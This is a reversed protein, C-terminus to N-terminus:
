ACVCCVAKGGGPSLTYLVIKRCRQVPVGPLVLEGHVLGVAVYFGFASASHHEGSCQKYAAAPMAHGALKSLAGAVTQYAEDGLRPVQGGYFRSPTQRIASNCEASPGRTDSASSTGFGQRNCIPSVASESDASGKEGNAGTLLLDVEGLRVGAATLAEAIWRAEAAADFTPETLQGLRIASVWALPHAAHEPRALAFMACGEGPLARQRGQPASAFPRVAPTQENWWGWRRGAALHHPNLEDGAGVLAADARGAAIERAGQWLASEFCIGRQVSTSNLGRLELEIAIQSALGNHVSNTFFLPRPAREDKAILNEVFAATDNLSGLGTGVAVCIRDPPVGPLADAPLCQKAAVLAMQQLRNLKRRKASDLAQEAGFDGCAYVPIAGRGPALWTEAVSLKAGGREVAERIAATSNGAASVAAAGIIALRALPGANEEVMIVAPAADARSFVLAVNNGGFGFSNSLIHRVPLGGFERVPEFGVKPDSQEFGLSAPVAQQRLAEVCLVAKIAGSAALTHGFFRMMSGVPPLADGFLRRLARAETADNDPTGTGHASVYGVDGVTRGASHLAAQMAALAGRGEPHPATAHWADCSAGWGELRALIQAGRVRASEESELVLMGAGEGLSIGTRRADFPRCGNPDLLLLSGFGNLTLRCLSDGGGVLAFDAEGSEILDAGMALAMAGAACAASVTTCVGKAGIQRACLEAAGACEHFRLPGFRSRHERLLTSLVQETSPMGGVTSGIVVAMRDPSLPHPVQNFGAATLAERAAIWVLKDSRSGRVNGALANVDERVEGVLHQGFRPSPFRTLSGLGSRGARLSQWVQPVGCGAACIVGTGTIVPRRRTM